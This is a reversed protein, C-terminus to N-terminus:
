SMKNRLYAVLKHFTSGFGQQMSDEISRFTEEQEATANVPRGTLTVRTKGNEEAFTIRYHVEEPFPMPFPAPVVNGAEDAFANTFELLEDPEIRLYHFRGYSVTDGSIMKFHFIGGPRFDLRIVSNVTEAPGWWANLAEATSFARFVAERSADFTQVYLFAEKM